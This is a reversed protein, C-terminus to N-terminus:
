WERTHDGSMACVGNVGLWQFCESVTSVKKVAFAVDMYPHFM